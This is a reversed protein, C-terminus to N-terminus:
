PCFQLDFLDSLNCLGNFGLDEGQLLLLSQHQSMHIKPRLKFLKWSRKKVATALLGYGESGLTNWTPWCAFGLPQLTRAGAGITRRWNARSSLVHWD